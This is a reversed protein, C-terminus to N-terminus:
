ADDCERAEMKVEIGYMQYVGLRHKSMRSVFSCFQQMELLVNDGRATTCADAEGDVM